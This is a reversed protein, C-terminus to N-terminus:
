FKGNKDGLIMQKVKNYICEENLKYTDIIDKYWGFENAFENNLGM